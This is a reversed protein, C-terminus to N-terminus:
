IDVLDHAPYTAEGLRSEEVITGPVFPRGVVTRLGHPPQGPYELDEMAIAIRRAIPILPVPRPEIVEIEFRLYGPESLDALGQRLQPERIAARHRHMGGPM